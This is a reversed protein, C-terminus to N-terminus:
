YWRTTDLAEMAKPTWESGSFHRQLAQVARSRIEHSQTPDAGPHGWTLDVGNLCVVAQYLMEPVSPHADAREAEAIVQEVLWEYGDGAERIRDWEAKVISGDPHPMYDSLGAVPWEAPWWNLGDPDARNLPEMRIPGARLLVSAGPTKLLASAAFYRMRAPETVELLSAMDERMSPAAQGVRPALRRVLDWRDLLLARTWAALLLEVALKEPQGEIDPMGVLIDIPVSENLIEATEPGWRMANRYPALTAADGPELEWPRYYAGSPSYAFTVFAPPRVGYFLLEKKGNALRARLGLARNRSSDLGRLAPILRDLAAAAAAREGNEGMLRAGHFTLLPAAPHGKAQAAAEFLEQASPHAPGVKAVAAALWTVSQSERWRELAHEVAADGEQQFTFIWDVLEDDQRVKALAQEDGALNDMLQTFLRLEDGRAAGGLPSLLRGSLLRAAESPDTRMLIRALLFRAADRAEEPGKGAAALRLESAAQRLRSAYTKSGPAATRANWLLSRGALYRGWGSWPSAGNAAIRRFAAAAEQYRSSYFLAAAIQYERDARILPDISRPASPPVFGSGAGFCNEFVYDQGRVWEAVETSDKGFSDIRAQLTQAATAFADDSCKSYYVYDVALFQAAAYSNPKEPAQWPLPLSGRVADYAEAAKSQAREGRPDELRGKWYRDFQEVEEPSFPAGDMLRYAAYLYSRAYTPQVLGIRGEAYTRLPLDPHQAFTFVATPLTNHVGGPLSAALAALATLALTRCRRSLGARVM